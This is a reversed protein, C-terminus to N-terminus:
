SQIPILKDMKSLEILNKVHGMPSRLVLDRGARKATENAIIGLGASDVSALSSLDLVWHTTRSAVMDDLLRRFAGNDSFSLSESLRVEFVTETVMTTVQM